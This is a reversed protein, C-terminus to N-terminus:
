PPKPRKPDELLYPAQGSLRHKLEEPAMTLQSVSQVKEQHILSPLRVINGLKEGAQLDLRESSLNCIALSPPTGRYAAQVLGYAGPSSGTVGPVYWNSRPFDRSAKIFGEPYTCEVWGISQAEILCDRRCTVTETRPAQQKVAKM